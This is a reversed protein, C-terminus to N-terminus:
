DLTAQQESAPPSGGHEAEIRQINDSFHRIAKDLPM